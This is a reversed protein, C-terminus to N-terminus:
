FNYTIATSDTSASRRRRRKTSAANSQKRVRSRHGSKKGKGSQKIRSTATSFKPLVRKQIRQRKSNGKGSQKRGKYVRKRSGSGVQKDDEVFEASTPAPQVLTVSAGPTAAAALAAAERAAREEIERRKTRKHLEKFVTEMAPVAAKLAAEKFGATALNQAVTKSFSGVGKSAVPIIWKVASKLIDGIGNGRQHRAAGEFVPFPLLGRGAQKQLYYNLFVNTDTSSTTTRMKRSVMITPIYFFQM